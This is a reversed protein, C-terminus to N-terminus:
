AQELRHLEDHPDQGHADGGHQSGSHEEPDPGDPPRFPRATPGLAKQRPQADEVQALKLSAHGEIRVRHCAGADEDGHRDAHHDCAKRETDAHSILGPQQAILRQGGDAIDADEIPDREQNRSGGHQSQLLKCTRGVVPLGVAHEPVQAAVRGHHPPADPGLDAGAERQRQGEREDM